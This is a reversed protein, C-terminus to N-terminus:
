RLLLMKRSQIFDGVRIRYIYIGSAVTLGSKGHGSWRLQHQGIPYKRDTLVQVRQGLVNFITINVDTAKPLDFRIITSANFPNPYNQYLAFDEPLRNEADENVGTV